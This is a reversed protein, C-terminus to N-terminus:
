VYIHHFGGDEGAEASGSDCQGWSVVRGVTSATVDGGVRHLVDDFARLAAVPVLLGLSNALNLLEVEVCVEMQVPGSHPIRATIFASNRLANAGRNNVVDRRSAHNSHTVADGVRNQRADVHGVDGGDVHRWTSGVWNAGEFGPHGLLVQVLGHREEHLLTALEGNEEVGEGVVAHLVVCPTGHPHSLGVSDM